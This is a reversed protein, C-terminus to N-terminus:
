FMKLSVPMKETETKFPISGTSHWFVKTIVKSVKWVLTIQFKGCLTLFILFFSFTLYLFLLPRFIIIIYNLDFILSSFHLSMVAWELYTEQM